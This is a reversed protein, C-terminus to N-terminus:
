FTAKMVNSLGRALYIAVAAWVVVIATLSIAYWRLAYHSM